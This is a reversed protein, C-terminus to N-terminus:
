LEGRTRYVIVASRFSSINPLTGAGGGPRFFRSELYNTTTDEKGLTVNDMIAFLMEPALKRRKEPPRGAWARPQALMRNPMFIVFKEGGRLSERQARQIINEYQVPFTELLADHLVERMGPSRKAKHALRRLELLSRPDRRHM